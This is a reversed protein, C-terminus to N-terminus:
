SSNHGGPHMMTYTIIEYGYGDDYAVSRAVAVYDSATIATLVKAEGHPTRLVKGVAGGGAVLQDYLFKTVDVMDRVHGLDVFGGFNTYVQGVVEDPGNHTGLASPDAINNVGAVPALMCCPRAVNPALTPTARLRRTPLARPPSVIVEVRRNRPAGRQTEPALPRAAGLSRTVIRVRAAVAPDIRRLAATLAARVAGARR